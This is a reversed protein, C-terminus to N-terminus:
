ADGAEGARVAARQQDRARAAGVCAGEREPPQQGVQGDIGGERAARAHGQMRRRRLEAVAARGFEDEGAVAAGVEDAPGVATDARDAEVLQGPIESPRRRCRRRRGRACRRPCGAHRAGRPGRHVRATVEHDRAREDERAEVADEAILRGDPAHEAVSRGVGVEVLEEEDGVKAVPTAVSRAAEVLTSSTSKPRAVVASPSQMPGSPVIRTVPWRSTPQVGVHDDEGEVALAPGGRAVVEHPEHDLVAGRTVVGEVGALGDVHERAAGSRSGRFRSSFGPPAVGTAAGVTQTSRSGDRAKGEAPAQAARPTSGRRHAFLRTRPAPDRRRATPRRYARTVERPVGRLSRIGNRAREDKAGPHEERAVRRECSVDTRAGPSVALGPFGERQRWGGRVAAWQHEAGPSSRRM